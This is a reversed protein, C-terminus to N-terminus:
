GITLTLAVLLADFGRCTSKIYRGLFFLAAQQLHAVHTEIYLFM